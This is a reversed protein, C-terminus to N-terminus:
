KKKGLANYALTLHSKYRDAANHHLVGKQISKDIQAITPLYLQDATARDKEDLATRLKKVATRLRSANSRNRATRVRTERVRKLASPHNAM